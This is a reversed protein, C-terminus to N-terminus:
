TNPENDEKNEETSNGAGEYSSPRCNECDDAGCMRDSCSLRSSSRRYVDAFIDANTM